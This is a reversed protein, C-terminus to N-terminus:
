PLSPQSCNFSKSFIKRSGCGMEVWFAAQIFNLVAQIEVM